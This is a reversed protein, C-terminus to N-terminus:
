RKREGASGANTARLQLLTLAILALALLLSGAAALGYLHIQEALRDPLHVARRLHHGLGARRRHARVGRRLDAGRPDDALVMVVILNPM